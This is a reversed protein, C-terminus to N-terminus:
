GGGPPESGIVPLTVSAPPQIRSKTVSSAFTALPIIRRSAPAQNVAAAGPLPPGHFALKLM